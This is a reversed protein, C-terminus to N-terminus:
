VPRPLSAVVFTVQISLEDFLLMIEREPGKLDAASAKMKTLHEQNIGRGMSVRGAYYQMTRSSPLQIFGSQRMQEYNSHSKLYM